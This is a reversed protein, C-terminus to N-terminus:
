KSVTNRNSYGYRKELIKRIKHEEICHWLALCFFPIVFALLWFWNYPLLPQVIHRETWRQWIVLQQVIWFGVPGSLALAFIALGPHTIFFWLLSLWEIM